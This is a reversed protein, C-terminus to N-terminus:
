FPQFFSNVGALTTLTLAASALKASTMENAAGCKSSKGSFSIRFKCSAMEHFDSAMPVLASIV